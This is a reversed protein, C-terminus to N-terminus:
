YVEVQASSSYVFSIAISLRFVAPVRDHMLFLKPKRTPLFVNGYPSGVGVFSTNVVRFRQDEQSFNYEWTPHFRAASQPEMNVLMNSTFVDGSIQPRSALAFMAKDLSELAVQTGRPYIDRALFSLEVFMIEAIGGAIIRGYMVGSGSGVQGSVPVLMITPADDWTELKVVQTSGESGSYFPSSFKGIALGGPSGIINYEARGLRFKVALRTEGFPITSEQQDILVVM